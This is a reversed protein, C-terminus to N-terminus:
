PGLPRLRVRGRRDHANALTGEGVTSMMTGAPRATIATRSRGERDRRWSLAFNPCGPRSSPLLCDHIKSFRPPPTLEMALTFREPMLTLPPSDLLANM